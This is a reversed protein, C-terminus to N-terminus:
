CFSIVAPSFVQAAVREKVMKSIKIPLVSIYLPPTLGLQGGIAGLM